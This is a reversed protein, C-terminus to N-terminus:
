NRCSSIKKLQWYGLESMHATVAFDFKDVETCLHFDQEPSHSVEPAFFRVSCPSNVLRQKIGEKDYPLDLLLAALYDACVNDEDTQEEAKWGMRVLTVLEPSKSKIYRATAEANVLAGTLVEDAQTANVLGQTGAHTTHFVKAKDLNANLVQVPSNGFDFGEIMEGNREGILVADPFENKFKLAQDIAGVPSVFEVGSELCYCDVSFARFVDIIVVTGKATSAGEVFDTKIVEM